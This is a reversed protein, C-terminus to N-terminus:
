DEVWHDGRSMGSPLNLDVQGEALSWEGLKNRVFFVTAPIVGILLFLAFGEEPLFKLFFGRVEFLFWSLLFLGTKKWLLPSRVKRARAPLYTIKEVERYKTDDGAPEEAAAAAAAAAAKGAGAKGRRGGKNRPSASRAEQLARLERAKHKEVEGYAEYFLGFLHFFSYILVCSAAGTLFIGLAEFARIEKGDGLAETANGTANGTANLAANLTANLTANLENVVAEATEAAAVTEANVGM